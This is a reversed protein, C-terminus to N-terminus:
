RAEAEAFGFFALTAAMHPPPPAVVQLVRGDGRELEIARAHLHLRRGVQLGTLFAGEGGYKRDGLIPTGLATCHARLQHTRGTVPRLELWAATRGAHDLV